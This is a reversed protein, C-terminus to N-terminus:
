AGGMGEAGTMQRVHGLRQRGFRGGCDAPTSPSQASAKPRERPSMCPGRTGPVGSVRRGTDVM